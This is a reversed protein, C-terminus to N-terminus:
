RYGAGRGDAYDHHRQNAARRYHGVTDSGCRPIGALAFRPHERLRLASAGSNRQTLAPRDAKKARLLDIFDADRAREPQAVPIGLRIAEEKVPPFQMAHGRGRPKDPQTVVLVLEHGAESLARLPAVAFDPTGFYVIRM